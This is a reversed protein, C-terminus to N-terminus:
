HTIVAEVGQVSLGVRGATLIAGDFKNQLFGILEWNNTKFDKPFHLSIKGHNMPSTDIVLERVIQVHNLIHGSNEGRTVKSQGSKQILAIALESRDQSGDLQYEVSIQGKEVKGTIQLTTRADKGLEATIAKQLESSNSGVFETKGNVVIQPTYISQLKFWEGYRSQRKSYAADSFADKWGLHDWYDVHYALIYVPKKSSEKQVGALLEDAPPCSSCGESTFLEVVAFGRTNEIGNSNEMPRSNKANNFSDSMTAVALLCIVVKLKRTVKM